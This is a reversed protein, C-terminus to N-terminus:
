KLKNQEAKIQNLLMQGKNQMNNIAESITMKDEVVQQILNNTIQDLLVSFKEPIESDNQISLPKLLYFPELSRGDIEKSFAVRSLLQGQDHGSQIKAAADSNIYKVLKWAVDPNASKSNVAFINSLFIGMGENPNSPDVPVSVIDWNVPLPTDKLQQAHLINNIFYSSDLKMALRGTLFPDQKLQEEPGLPQLPKNESYVTKTKLVDVTTKVVNSWSDTNMNITSNNMDLKRLGKTVGMANMLASGAPENSFASFGYLRNSGDNTPFRQALQLVEEWSMKNRPYPIGYKDFLDKNYYIAMSSFFPTLGYIKGKGSSKIQEIVSPAIKDVNFNDKKIYTDLELLSGSDIMNQFRKSNELLVVDPNGQSYIKQFEKESDAGLNYISTMPIVQVDINPYMSSFVDGYDRKFTKEDLYMIKINGKAESADQKPEFLSCGSILLVIISVVVLKHSKM